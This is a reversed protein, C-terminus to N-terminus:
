EVIEESKEDEKYEKEPRSPQICILSEEKVINSWKGEFELFAIEGYKFAGIVQVGNSGLYQVSPLGSTKLLRKGRCYKQIFNQVTLPVSKIRQIDWIEIDMSEENIEMCAMAIKGM